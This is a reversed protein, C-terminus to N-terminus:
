SAARQAPDRVNPPSPTRPASFRLSRVGGLVAAVAKPQALLLGVLMCQFIAVAIMITTSLGWGTEASIAAITMPVFAAGFAGVHYVIGVARARVEAPFLGTLLMPTVGSYGGGTFGVLFAGLAIAGEVHGVYLPLAPVCLLAFLAVALTISRRAALTGCVVAGVMMGINFLAVVRAVGMSDFALETKLMTPYMGTIGYYAALGAGMLFSAWILIKVLEPTFASAKKTKVEFRAAKTAQEHLWEESEPVWIRIQRKYM